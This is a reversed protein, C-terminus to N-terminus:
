VFNYSYGTYVSISGDDRRIPVSVTLERESRRILSRTGEDLILLEFANELQAMATALMGGGPHTSVPKELPLEKTLTM